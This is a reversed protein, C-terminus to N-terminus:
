KADYRIDPWDVIIMQSTSHCLQTDDDADALNYDDSDTASDITDGNRSLLPLTEPAQEDDTANDDSMMLNVDQVREVTTIPIIVVVKISVGVIVLRVCEIAIGVDQLQGTVNLVRVVVDRVLVLVLM